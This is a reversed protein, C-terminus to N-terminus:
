FVSVQFPTCQVAVSGVKVWIRAMTVTEGEMNVIDKLKGQVDEPTVKGTPDLYVGKSEVIQAKAFHGAGVSMVHGSEKFDESCLLAVMPSVLEPIMIKLADEPLISETMRSVAGPAVTNVMIVEGELDFALIGYPANGIISILFEKVEFIIREQEREIISM